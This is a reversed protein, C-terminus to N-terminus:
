IASPEAGHVVPHAVHWRDERGAELELHLDVVAPREAAGQGGAAACTAGHHGHQVEVRLMAELLGQLALQQVGGAVRREVHDERLDELETDPRLGDEVQLAIEHAEVSDLRSEVEPGILLAAWLDFFHTSLSSFLFSVNIEHM